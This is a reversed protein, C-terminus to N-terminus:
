SSTRPSCAARRRASCPPRRPRPRTTRRPRADGAFPDRARRVVARRRRRLRRDRRRPGGARHRGRRHRRGARRPRRDDGGDGGRVRRQAHVVGASARRRDRHARRALGLWVRLLSPNAVPALGLITGAVLLWGAVRRRRGDAARPRPPDLTRPPHPAPTSARPRSTGPSGRCGRSPSGVVLLLFGNVPHLAAVAPYDDAARRVGVPVRVPRARAGDAGRHAARERGLLALVLMALTFWGAPLRLRSPHRVLGPRRVRRARRPLGPRARVRRVRRRRRAPGPPRLLPGHTDGHVIARRDPRQGLTRRPQGATM